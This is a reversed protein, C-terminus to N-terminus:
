GGGRGHYGSFIELGIFLFLVNDSSSTKLVRIKSCESKDFFQCNRDVFCDGGKRTLPTPSSQQTSEYIEFMKLLWFKRTQVFSDWVFCDLVFCDSFCDWTFITKVHWLASFQGKNLLCLFFSSVAATARVHQSCTLVPYSKFGLRYISTPGTIAAFRHRSRLAGM